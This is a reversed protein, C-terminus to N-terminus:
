LVGVIILMGCLRYSVSQYPVSCCHILSHTVNKAYLNVVRIHKITMMTMTHCVMKVIDEPMHADSYKVVNWM